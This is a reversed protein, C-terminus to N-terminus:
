FLSGSAVGSATPVYKATAANFNYTNTTDKYSSAAVSYTTTAIYSSKM